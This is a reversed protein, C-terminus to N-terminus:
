VVYGKPTKIPSYPMKNGLLAIYARSLASVMKVESIKLHITNAKGKLIICKKEKKKKM